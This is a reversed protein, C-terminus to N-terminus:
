LNFYQIFARSLSADVISSLVVLLILLSFRICYKRFEEYLNAPASRPFTMRAIVYSFLVSYKAASLVTLLFVVAVPIIIVAYFAVGKIGFVSYIYTATNTYFFGLFGVLLPSLVIGLLSTGALFILLLFLMSSFFSSLFINGFARGNRDNLFDTLSSEAFSSLVESKSYISVGVAMGILLVSLLIIFLKNNSLGKLIRLNKLDLVTGKRM